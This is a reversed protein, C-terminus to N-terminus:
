FLFGCLFVVQLSSYGAGSNYIETIMEAINDIDFDDLLTLMETVVGDTAKNRNMKALASRVDSKLIEPGEM